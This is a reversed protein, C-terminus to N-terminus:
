VSKWREPEGDEDKSPEPHKSCHGAIIQSLTKVMIPKPRDKYLCDLKPASRGEELAKCLSNKANQLRDAKTKSFRNSTKAKSEKSGEEAVTTPVAKDLSGPCSLGRGANDKRIERMSNKRFECCEEKKTQSEM